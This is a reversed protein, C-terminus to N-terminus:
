RETAINILNQILNDLNKLVIEVYESDDFSDLKYKLYDFCIEKCYKKFNSLTEDYNDNLITEALWNRYILKIKIELNDLIEQLLEVQIDKKHLDLEINM